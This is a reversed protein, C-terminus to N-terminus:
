SSGGGGVAADTADHASGADGEDGGNAAAGGRGATVGDPSRTEGRGAEASDQPFEVGTAVRGGSGPSRAAIGGDAGADRAALSGVPTEALGAGAATLLGEDYAHCGAALGLAGFLRLEKRM